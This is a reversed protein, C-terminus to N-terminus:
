NVPVETKAPEAQATKAPVPLAKILAEGVAGFVKRREQQDDPLRLAWQEATLPKEGREVFYQASMAALLDLAIVLVGSTQGKGLDVFKQLCQNMDLGKGDLVYEALLSWKLPYEIGGIKILTPQIPEM